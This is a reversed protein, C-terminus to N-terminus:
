KLEITETIKDDIKIQLKNEVKEVEIKSESNNLIISKLYNGSLDDYILLYKDTIVAIYEDILIHKKITLSKLQEFGEYSYFKVDENTESILYKDTYNTIVREIEKSIETNDVGVLKWKNDKMVVFKDTKLVDDKTRNVLGIFSYEFPLIGKLEDSVKIVGWLNHKDKIIYYDNELKTNYTKIENYTQLTNGSVVDILHIGVGDTIFTYKDNIISINTLRGDKYYNIGYKDDNITPTSYKCIETVCEYKNLFKNNSDYFWIYGDYYTEHNPNKEIPSINTKNFIGIITLPVFICLLIVITIFVNKKNEM